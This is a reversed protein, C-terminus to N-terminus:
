GLLGWATKVPAHLPCRCKLQTTKWFLPRGHKYTNQKVLARVAEATKVEKNFM